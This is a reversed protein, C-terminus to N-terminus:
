DGQIADLAEKYGEAGYTLDGLDSPKYTSNTNGATRSAENPSVLNKNVAYNGEEGLQWGYLKLDDKNDISSPTSSKYDYVGRTSLADENLEGLNDYFGEASNDIKNLGAISEM